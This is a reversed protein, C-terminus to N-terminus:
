FQFYIFENQGDRGLLFILFCLVFLNIWSFVGENHSVRWEYALLLGIVIVCLLLQAFGLGFTVIPAYLAFGMTFLRTFYLQISALDPCRFLVWAFCVFTFVYGWGIAKLFVSSTLPFYRNFTREGILLLGHLGGWLIFTWNAGHWLGSLLFVVLLNRNTTSRNGGLPVYVYDRFWSSLSIHWRRWFDTLSTAFYPQRFNQMLDFGMCKATGRAIDSYGSFDCYIQFAFCLAGFLLALSNAAPLSEYLRNVYVALNDAVVVKKFLGWVIWSFGVRLKDYDVTQLREFQPLIHPAREIPGAVLQPFYSVYASFAVFDHTAPLRKRYVDITYSLTQFTYFSIGVPLVLHLTTWSFTYGLYGGLAQLNEAFFGFYKFVGLIGLNAVLSVVLLRKREPEVTTKDLQIAVVYDILTSLAILALFRVDWWGYFVYSVVWIFLNRLRINRNFFAVYLVFVLPFFLAFALSNFLM